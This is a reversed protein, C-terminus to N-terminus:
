FFKSIQNQIEAEFSALQEDILAHVKNDNPFEIWWKGSTHSPYGDNDYHKQGAEAHIFFEDLYAPDECGEAHAIVSALGFTESPNWVIEIICHLHQHDFEIHGNM